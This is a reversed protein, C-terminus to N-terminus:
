KRKKEKKTESALMAFKEDHVIIKPLLRPKYHQSATRTNEVQFM